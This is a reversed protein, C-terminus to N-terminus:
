LYDEINIVKTHLNLLTSRHGISIILSSALSNIVKNYLEKETKEDLASTIEDLYIIDPKNILIRGFAIKQQEGLSLQNSWNCIDYLKDVLHTLKCQMLIQKVETDSPLNTTKPYCIAEKLNARPIYPKQAIFLSNLNPMQYINGDVYPWLGNIAKLLTTKGMGSPGNILVRDGSNFIQSFNKILLQGNPLTIRLNKIELYNKNHTLIALESLNNVDQVTDRFGLLRDTVARWNAVSSYAFVFYAISFQLQGFASNIQMMNGLTIEKSFYRGASIITPVINSVQMYVFNFMNIKLNRRLSQMFNGVINDFDKTIIKKEAADGKYSVIHEAHERVRVLNYRFDAEYMQQEYTLKILPQGIKFTIYTGLFAYLIAIWVMYGPIYFHYNFLNFKFNGSLGWLIVVFSGMSMVSRFLGLSLSLTLNIFEKIDESIRQDPNELRTKTFRVKYYAKSTFWNDLYFHTLWKRWKIELISNFYYGLLMTLVYLLIIYTGQFLAKLFAPKDYNQIANYFTVNWKNLRVSMYVELVSLLIILSLWAISKFKESSSWYPRALYWGDKIWTFLNLHVKNKMIRM